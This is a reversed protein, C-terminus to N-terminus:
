HLSALLQTNFLQSLHRCSPTSKEPHSIVKDCAGFSVVNSKAMECVAAFDFTLYATTDQSLQVIGVM